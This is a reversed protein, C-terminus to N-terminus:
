RLFIPYMLHSPTINTNAAQYDRLVSHHYGSHLRHTEFKAMRNYGKGEASGPKLMYQTFHAVVQTDPGWILM